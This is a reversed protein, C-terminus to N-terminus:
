HRPYISSLIKPPPMNRERGHLEILISERRGGDIIAIRRRRIGQALLYQQAQVARDRAKGKPGTCEDYAVIYAKSGQGLKRLKLAFENLRYKEQEVTINEDYALFVPSKIM